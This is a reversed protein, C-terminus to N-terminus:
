LSSAKMQDSTHSVIDIDDCIRQHKSHKRLMWNIHSIAAQNDCCMVVKSSSDLKYFHCFQYLFEVVAGIGFLETHTSSVYEPIGDVPGAGSVLVNGNGILQWGFSGLEEEKDLSGDSAAKV